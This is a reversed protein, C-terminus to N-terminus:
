PQEEIWGDLAEFMASFLNDATPILTPDGIQDASRVLWFYAGSEATAEGSEEGSEEGGSKGRAAVLARRLAGGRSPDPALGFRLPVGVTAARRGYAERRAPITLYKKGPGPMIPGGEIRQRAARHHISVAVGGDNVEYATSQAMDGYLGTPNAGLEAATRHHDTQEVHVLHDKLARVAALGIPKKHRGERLASLLGGLPDGGTPPIYTVSAGLGAM